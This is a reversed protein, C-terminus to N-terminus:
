AREGGRRPHRRRDGGRRPLRAGLITPPTVFASYAMALTGDAGVSVGGLAGDGPLTVQPGPSGDLGHLLVRWSRAM